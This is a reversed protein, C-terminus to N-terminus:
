AALAVRLPWLKPFSVSHCLCNSSSNGYSSVGSWNADSSSIFLSISDSLGISLNSQPSTPYPLVSTAMLAAKLATISPFCTAKKTGVM